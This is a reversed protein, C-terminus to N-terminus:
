IFILSRWLYHVPLGSPLDPHLSTKEKMIYQGGQQFKKLAHFAWGQCYKGWYTGAIKGLLFLLCCIEAKTLIHWFVLSFFLPIKFLCVYTLTWYWPLSLSGPSFFFIPHTLPYLGPYLYFQQADFNTTPKSNLLQFSLYVRSLQRAGVWSLEYSICLRRFAQGFIM